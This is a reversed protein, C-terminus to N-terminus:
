EKQLFAQYQSALHAYASEAQHMRPNLMRQIPAGDSALHENVITEVDEPRVQCYWVNEPMIRVTPGSGCQGQCECQSVMVTDSQHKQFESLVQEAGNRSCSRHQCVMILYRQNDDAMFCFTAAYTM